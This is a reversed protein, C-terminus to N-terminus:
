GEPPPARRSGIALFAKKLLSLSLRLAKTRNNLLTHQATGKNFKKQVKECKDILSSVARIAEALEEGKHKKM